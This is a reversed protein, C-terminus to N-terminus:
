SQSLTPDYPDHLAYLMGDKDEIKHWRITRLQTSSLSKLLSTRALARTLPPEQRALELASPTIRTQRGYKKYWLDAIGRASYVDEWKLDIKVAELNETSVDVIGREYMLERKAAWDIRDSISGLERLGDDLEDIAQCATIVEKAANIEEVPVFTQQKAFDLAHEAVLRQHTAATMFRGQTTIPQMRSTQQMIATADGKGVYLSEPFKGHEILRLVLSTLAFKQLIVWESMSGEGLRLELRQIPGGEKNTRYAMKRGHKGPARADFDTAAAKQSLEYGKKTVIGAGSWVPRTALYSSLARRAPSEYSEGPSSFVLPTAYNEHHGDSMPVLGAFGNIQVADYGTRKYVGTSAHPTYDCLKIARKSLDAVIREGSREYVLLDQASTVEPTAYELLGGADIYLRSGNNLWLDMGDDQDAERYAQIDSPLVLELNNDWPLCDTTYETESGMIRPPTDHLFDEATYTM